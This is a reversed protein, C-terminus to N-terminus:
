ISIGAMEDRIERNIVLFSKKEQWALNM